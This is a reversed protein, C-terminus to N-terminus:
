YNPHIYVQLHSTQANNNVSTNTITASDIINHTTVVSTLEYFYTFGCANSLFTLNRHYYFSITDILNGAATDAAMLWKCSDAVPSLTINFYSAPSYVEAHTISDTLPVFLAAPLATDSTVTDIVHQAHIQLGPTKPTMCPQREDTCSVALVLALLLSIGIPLKNNIM